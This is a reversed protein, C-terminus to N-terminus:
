KMRGLIGEIKVQQVTYDKGYCEAEDMCEKKSWRVCDMWDGDKDVVIWGNVKRKM